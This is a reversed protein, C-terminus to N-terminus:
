EKSLSLDAYWFSTDYLDNEEGLIRHTVAGIKYPVPERFLPGDYVFSHFEGNEGCADVGDPLSAFFDADLQRGVHREDLHKANVCVTVAKFGLDVFRRALTDSAQQWLPFIGTVGATALREERYERLNQLFIDGFIANTVGDRRLNAWTEHMLADYVDVSAPQPLPVTLLPLRLAAAQRALLAQPVDHMSIRGNSVTTLLGVIEYEDAALAAHLALASDKGGSWNMIAKPKRKM